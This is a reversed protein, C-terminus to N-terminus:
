WHLWLMNIHTTSHLQVLQNQQTSSYYISSPGRQSSVQTSMLQELFGPRIFNIEDLHNRTHKVKCPSREPFCSRRNVKSNNMRWKLLVRFLKMGTVYIIRLLKYNYNYNIIENIVKSILTSRLTFPRDKHDRPRLYSEAGSAQQYQPNSDRHSM